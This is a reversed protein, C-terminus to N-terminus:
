ELHKGVLNSVLFISVKKQGGFITKLRRDLNVQGSETKLGHEKIYTWVMDLIESHPRPEEGVLEALVADPQRKENSVLRLKM